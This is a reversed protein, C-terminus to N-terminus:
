YQDLYCGIRCVAEFRFSVYQGNGSGPSLNWAAEKILYGGSNDGLGSSPRQSAVFVHYGGATTRVPAAALFDNAGDFRVGPKTGFIGTKYLPQSASTAQAVSIAPANSKDVWSALATGDSISDTNGDGDIDTADLWLALDPITDENLATNAPVFTKVDGWVNGGSNSVKSTYYYTTGKTLGTLAKNVVGVGHTGSITLM